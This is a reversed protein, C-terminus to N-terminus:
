ADSVFGPCVGLKRAFEGRLKQVHDGSRERVRHDAELGPRHLDFRM